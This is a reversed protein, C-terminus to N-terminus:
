SGATSPAAWRQRPSTSWRPGQGSVTVTEELAGVGLIIDLPVTAGVRLEYGTTQFTSFGPLAATVSFTGPLLQAAFYSGDGGTIVERFTGDAENQIFVTVGPLAGGTEDTVSGRLETRGQQAMAPAATAGILGGVILFTTLRRM